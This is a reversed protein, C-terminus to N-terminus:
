KLFNVQMHMVSCVSRFDRNEDAHEDKTTKKEDSDAAATQELYNTRGKRQSSVLLPKETKEPCRMYEAM